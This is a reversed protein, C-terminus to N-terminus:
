AHDDFVRGPGLRRRLKMRFRPTVDSWGFRDSGRWAFNRESRKAKHGRLKKQEFAVLRHRESTTSQFDQNGQKLAWPRQDALLVQHSADPGTNKHLRGIQGDM